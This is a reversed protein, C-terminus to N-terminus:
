RRARNSSEEQVRLRANLSDLEITREELEQQRVRLEREREEVAALLADLRREADPVRAEADALIEQGLESGGPSPWAM